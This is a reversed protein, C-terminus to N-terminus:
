VAPIHVFSGGISVQALVKLLSGVGPISGVVELINQNPSRVPRSFIM